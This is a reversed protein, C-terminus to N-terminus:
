EGASLCRGDPTLRIETLQCIGDLNHQCKNGCRIVSKPEFGGCKECESKGTFQKEHRNHRHVCKDDVAVPLRGLSGRAHICAEWKQVRLYEKGCATM